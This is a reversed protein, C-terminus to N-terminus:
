VLVFLNTLYKSTVNKLFKLILFNECGFIHKSAFDTETQGPKIFSMINSNQSAATRM